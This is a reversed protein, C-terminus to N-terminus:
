TDLEAARPADLRARVDANDAALRRLSERISILEDAVARGRDGRLDALRARLAEIEAIAADVPESQAEPVAPVM